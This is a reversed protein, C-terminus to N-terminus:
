RRAATVGQFRSSNPEHGSIHRCNDDAPLSLVAESYPPDFRDVSAFDLRLDRSTRGGRLASRAVDVDLLLAVAQAEAAANDEELRRFDFSTQQPTADISQTLLGVDLVDAYEAPCRYGHEGRSPVARTSCAASRSAEDAADKVDM